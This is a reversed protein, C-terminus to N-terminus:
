SSLKTPPMNNPFLVIQKLKNYLVNGHSFVDLSLRPLLTTSFDMTSNVGYVVFLSCGSDHRTTVGVRTNYVVKLSMQIIFSSSASFKLVNYSLLFQYLMLYRYLM